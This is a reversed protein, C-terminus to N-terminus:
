FVESSIRGDQYLAARAMGETNFPTAIEGSASLAILGGSGRPDYPETERLAARAAEALSQGGFRMRFAVQAAAAARIFAEGTGTCSVAAHRDAWTGAGVIPSDGVRGQPKHNVGATSTAAALRGELDLALCGVTGMAPDSSSSSLEVGAEGSFWAAPDEIPELGQARAFAAAGDGALLVQPTREM